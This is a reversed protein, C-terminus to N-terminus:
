LAAPRGFMEGLRQALAFDGELDLRGTLLARGPDLEGGAIRVFDAVSLRLTLAAANTPGSRAVARDGDIRLTWPVLDGNRRLDYQLEGTFGDGSGPVYAHTMAAFIARLAPGSGVTRELRRDGSRRVYAGFAREGGEALRRGVVALRPRRLAFGGGTTADAPPGSATPTVAYERDTHRRPPERRALAADIAGGLRAEREADAADARAAFEPLVEAGFLELSECIHEHRNRGAQM